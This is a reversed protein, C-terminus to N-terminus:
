DRQRLHILYKFFRQLKSVRKSKVIEKTLKLKLPTAFNNEELPKLQELRKM